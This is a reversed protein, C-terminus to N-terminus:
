EISINKIESIFLRSSYFAFSAGRRALLIEPINKGRRFLGMKFFFCGNENVVKHCYKKWCDTTLVSIPVLREVVEQIYLEEALL